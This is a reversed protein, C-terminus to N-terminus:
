LEESKKSMVVFSWRKEDQYRHETSHYYDEDAIIMTSLNNFVIFYGHFHVTSFVNKNKELDTLTRNIDKLVSCERIIRGFNKIKMKIVLKLSPNDM